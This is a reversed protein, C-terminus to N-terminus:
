VKLYMGEPALTIKQIKLLGGVAKKFDKKSMEFTQYILYSETKDTFPLFGKTNQLHQLLTQMCDDIRGYGTEVLTLDILGDERVKKVFGKVTNGLEIKKFTENRYLVGLHTQNILAKIGMDTYEYPTIDVAQGDTLSSTDKDIYRDIKASAIIRRSNEDFCVRVLYSKGVVMRQTQEKFPVLLDKMLGWDMFAGVKTVDTVELFAFEDVTAKPKLTTAILRDESDRYVFVNLLDGIKVNAPVYQRPVLIETAGGDLYLGFDLDKVIELRNYKGIQLM